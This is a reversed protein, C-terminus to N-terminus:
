HVRRQGVHRERGARRVEGDVFELAAVESGDGMFMVRRSAILLMAIRIPALTTPGRSSAPLNPRCVGMSKESPSMARSSSIPSVMMGAVFMGPALAVFMPANMAM